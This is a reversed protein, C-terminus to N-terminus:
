RGVTEGAQLPRPMQRQRNSGREEEMMVPPASEAILFWESRWRKDWGNREEDGGVVTWAAAADTHSLVAAGEGEDGDSLM